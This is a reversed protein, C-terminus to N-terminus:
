STRTGFRTGNMAVTEAEAETHRKSPGLSDGLRKRTNKMAAVVWETRPNQEYGIDVFFYSVM